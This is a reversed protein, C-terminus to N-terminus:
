WAVPLEYVGYVQMDHRLRIEEPPVALRLHPFRRLLATLGVRLEIRALQQGLCQHAGHGFGLHSTASRTVDLLEPHDFREPDRNAATLSVMVVEGKRILRGDVEVDELAARTPGHHVISLYRLLEEVANDTLSPDARLAALQAPNTLLALVGLALQNATTEHGAVLLLYAISTLEEDTLEPDAAMLGSLIDDEPASRKRVVLNHLYMTLGGFAKALEELDSNFSSWVATDHQFRERDAYPVGLMESIVLSPLPLAFNEFLDAPSGIREMADLHSETVKEIWDTLLRMRRVTFQGVLLRRYRQHEPNDHQIFIGPPASPSQELEGVRPVPPHKLEGRASFRPDALVARSVAYGTALWGLHGDAFTMRALPAHARLAEIHPPPHFIGDRVTTYTTPTAQDM